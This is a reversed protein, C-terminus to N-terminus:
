WDFIFGRMGRQLIEEKFVDLNFTLWKAGHDDSPHDTYWKKDDLIEEVIDILEVTEHREINFDDYWNFDNDVELCDFHMVWGSYPMYAQASVFLNWRQDLPIAINKIINQVDNVLVEKQEDVNRLVELITDIKLM